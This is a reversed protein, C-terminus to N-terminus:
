INRGFHQYLTRAVRRAALEIRGRRKYHINRELSAYEEVSLRWGSAGCDEIVHAATSAKPITVVNDKAVLWNLAVQAETKGATTAIRNLEGHPDARKFQSFSTGLPSFAIVTIANEQCYKLLGGEITREILSYRVQNAVIRRKTLASQARKLEGISFNSVGIFCIKGADALEEMASMTEEIPVTYNPWHLQYLDIYDTGLRGLSREAAAILDRRRFNRPAAKTALFVQERHNRIAEGVTGETGYSEATDILCAGQEIAARLPEVGGSYNWTGFGVAPLRVQTNGLLKTEMAAM